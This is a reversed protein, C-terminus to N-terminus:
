LPYCIDWSSKSYMDGCLVFKIIGELTQSSYIPPSRRVIVWDAPDLTYLISAIAAACDDIKDIWLANLIIKNWRTIIVIKIETKCRILTVWINVKLVLILLIINYIGICIYYLHLIYSQGITHM